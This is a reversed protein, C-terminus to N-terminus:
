AAVIPLTFFFTTGVGLMSEVWITGDHAEVIGKAIALGLGIGRKDTRSGQWFQEFVKPLQEPPMGAGTDAVSIRAGGLAREGRLTIRGGAPTFKISNGILNSLVQQVRNADALVIPLDAPADLVLEIKATQAIGRLSEFADNLLDSLPAPHREVALRGNELRKVDLLDGILRNMRDAARRMIALHRRSPAEAGLVEELLGSAMVITGLPNRLDHAVIGLMQDRARTAQEAAQYLRANEVALAARRGLEDVLSVDDPGFRRSSESAYLSFAGIVKDGAKLPVAVCSRPAIDWVLKEHDADIVMQALMEDTFEHVFTPEGDFLPRRLHEVIPAGPRLWRTLECLKAEKQADVHTWAIRELSGDPRFMDVTCFDGLEPVALLTLTRLTTPYDFSSGLLRSAEALFASRRRSAEATARAAQEEILDHAVKEAAKRETIDLAAGIIRWPNGDANLIARGDSRVIRVDDPARVVRHEISFDKRERIAVAIAERVGHVDDPHIHSLVAERLVPEGVPLGYIRYMEDSVNLADSALEWDWSGLHAISQAEALQSERRRLEAEVRRQETVDQVTTVRAPKGRYTLNRGTIEAVMVSGDRRVVNAEYPEPADAAMKRIIHQRAEDQQIFDLTNRGILEAVEFGIMRALACNAEFLIGNEHIFVGEFAADTLLRYREESERLRDEADRRYIAAGITGGAARLAELVSPSWERCTFADGFGLYGWWANGAFVPVAAISQIQIREFYAREAPAMTEISGTITEGRELAAWRGLGLAEMDLNQRAVDPADSDAPRAPANPAVWENRLSVRLSGDSSHSGEFLYVRTVETAEGLRALVDSIDRDWDATALFRTAAFSIAALVAERRRIVAELDLVHTDQASPHLAAPPVLQRDITM